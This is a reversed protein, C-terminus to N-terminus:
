DPLREKDTREFLSPNGSVVTGNAIGKMPCGVIDVLISPAGPHERLETDLDPEGVLLQGSPIFVHERQSPDAIEECVHNWQPHELCRESESRSGTDKHRNFVPGIPDADTVTLTCIGPDTILHVLGFAGDRQPLDCM